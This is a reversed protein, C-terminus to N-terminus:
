TGSAEVNTARGASWCRTQPLGLLEANYKYTFIAALFGAAYITTRTTEEVHQRGGLFTVASM